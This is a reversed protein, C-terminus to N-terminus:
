TYSRLLFHFDVEFLIPLQVEIRPWILWVTFFLAAMALLVIFYKRNWRHKSYRGFILIIM